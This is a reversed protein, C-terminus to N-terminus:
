GNIIHKQSVFAVAQEQIPTPGHQPKSRTAGADLGQFSHAKTLEAGYFIQLVSLFLDPKIFHHTTTFFTTASRRLVVEYQCTKM